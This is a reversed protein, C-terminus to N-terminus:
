SIYPILQKKLKERARFLRSKITGKSCQFVDALQKYSLDEIERLIVLEKMGDSLSNIAAKIKTGLEKNELIELSCRSSDEQIRSSLPDQGEKAPHSLSVTSPKRKKGNQANICTNITIRYLWTYFKSEGRFRPLYRYVKVFIDQCLDEADNRDGIMALVIRYIRSQYKEVLGKFSEKDGQKFRRILDRDSSAM